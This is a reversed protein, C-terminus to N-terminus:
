VQGMSVVMTLAFVDNGVSSFLLHRNHCIIYVERCLWWVGFQWACCKGHTLIQDQCTVCSAAIWQYKVNRLTTFYMLLQFGGAFCPEKLSKRGVISDVSPTWCSGHECCWFLVNSLIVRTDRVGTRCSRAVCAVVMRYESFDLQWWNLCLVNSSGHDSEWFGSGM